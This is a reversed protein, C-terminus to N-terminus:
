ATPATAKSKRIVVGARTRGGTTAGPVATWRWMRENSKSRTEEFPLPSRMSGARERLTRIAESLATPITLGFRKLAEGMTIEGRESLTALFERALEGMGDVWEAFRPDQFLAEGVEPPPNALNVSTRSTGDEAGERAATRGGRRRSSARPAKDRARSKSRGTAGEAATEGGGGRLWRWVREGAANKGAEFPLAVNRERAWRSLSGTIGGIAKPVTIGLEKVAEALTLEGHERILDLFTRSPKPLGEIFSQYRAAENKSGGGTTAASAAPAAAARARRGGRRKPEAATDAARATATAAAPAASTAAAGRGRRRGDGAAPAAGKSAGALSLMLESLAQAVRPNQLADLPVSVSISMATGETFHTNGM